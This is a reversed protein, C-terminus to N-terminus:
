KTNPIFKDLALYEIDLGLKLLKIWGIIETAHLPNSDIVRLFQQRRCNKNFVRSNIVTIVMKELDIRERDKLIEFIKEVIIDAELGAIGHIEINTM